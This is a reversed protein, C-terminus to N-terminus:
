AISFPLICSLCALTIIMLGLDLFGVPFVTMLEGASDADSLCDANSFDFAFVRKSLFSVEYTSSLGSKLVPM